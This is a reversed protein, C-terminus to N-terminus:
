TWAMDSSFTVGRRSTSDSSTPPTPRDRSHDSACSCGTSRGDARHPADMSRHVRSAGRSVGAVGRGAAARTRCSRDGAVGSSRADPDSQWAVHQGHMENHYSVRRVDEPALPWGEDFVTVYLWPSLARRALWRRCSRRLRGLRAVPRRNGVSSPLGSGGCLERSDALAADALAARGCWARRAM